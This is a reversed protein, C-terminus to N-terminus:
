TLASAFHMINYALASWLAVCLTKALGRVSLPSMGRFTRLDANITESTSSREKYIAQAAESNMRSRWDAVAQSDTQRRVYRDQEKANKNPPPVPMYVTVQQEAARDIAERSVYGGDILHESVKQGTRQEVQQRMLESLTADAGSNSVMVGVIARSIPDSALQVNYAPNFGGNPMKMNRAEPDTTSARAAREAKAGHQKAKSQEVKAVEELAAKVRTLRDQSLARQRNQEQQDVDENEATEAQKKLDALHTQAEALFQELRPRTRFSGSGASARVRLGDQSIRTVTVLGGHMLRGLTATFLQDLAAGHEVRFDNLTHYNMNLGGCVWKFTLDRQCRRELERGRSVNNVAAWLWLAVMVAVDNASRGPTLERVVIPQTFRSLDMQSVADWIVRVQHDDTVLEDICCFHMAVQSRDARRMRVNGLRDEPRPQTAIATADM